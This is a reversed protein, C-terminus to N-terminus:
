PYYYYHYGPGYYAPAPAAYVCGALAMGLAMVALIRKM